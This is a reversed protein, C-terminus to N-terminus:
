DTNQMIDIKLKPNHKKRNHYHGQRQEAKVVATGIRGM